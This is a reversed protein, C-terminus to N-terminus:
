TLDSMLTVYKVNSNNQMNNTDPAHRHLVHKRHLYNTSSAFTGKYHVRNLPGRTLTASHCLFCSLHHLSPMSITFKLHCYGFLININDSDNSLCLLGSLVWFFVFCLLGRIKLDVFWKVSISGRDGGKKRSIVESGNCIDVHFKTYRRRFWNIQRRRIFFSTIEEM